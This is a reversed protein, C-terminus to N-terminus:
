QAAPRGGSYCLTIGDVEVGNRQAVIAHAMEQALLSVVFLVAAVVVAL